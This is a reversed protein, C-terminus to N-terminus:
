RKDEQTREPGGHLQPHDYTHGLGILGLLAMAGPALVPTAGTLARRILTLGNETPHMELEFETNGRFHLMVGVVGSLVFLVMLVQVSRVTAARPRAVHWGFTLLGVVLLLIPILELAGKVHGILVLEVSMGAVGFILVGLLFRRISALARQEVSPFAIV